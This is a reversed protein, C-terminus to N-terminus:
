GNQIVPTFRIERTLSGRLICCTILNNEYRYEISAKVPHYIDIKTPVKQYHRKYYYYAYCELSEDIYDESTKKLLAELALCSYYHQDLSILWTSLLAQICVFLLYTNM